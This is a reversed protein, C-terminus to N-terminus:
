YFYLVNAHQGLLTHNRGAAKFPRLASKELPIISNPYSLLYLSNLLLAVNTHKVYLEHKNIEIDQNGPQQLYHLCAHINFFQDSL